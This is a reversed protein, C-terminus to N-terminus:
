SKENLFRKLLHSISPFGIIGWEIHQLDMFKAAIVDDHTTMTDFNKVKCRFALDTTFVTFNSFVYENPSSFLYEMKEVELNLEETIERMLATEADEGPDVFGGPLDWLGKCPDFARQTLLVEGKENMIIAAVATASNIFFHFNCHSCLFSRNGDFVFAEKGCSPCYKLRHKPHM